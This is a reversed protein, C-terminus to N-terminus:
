TIIYLTNANYSSPRGESIVIKTNLNVHGNTVTFSSSDFSAIGLETTSAIPLETIGGSGGSEYDTGYMTIGGTVVLNGDLKWYGNNKDWIIENDNIFLGGTFNKKGIITDEGKITVFTEDVYSKDAKTSVVTQLDTVGKQLTNFESFKAFTEGKTFQISKGDNILEALTIANGSGVTTVSEITGGSAKAKLVKEGTSEDWYITDWDIPLGDYISDVDVNDNTAYMTIGGRVVLNADLYIVDDQSQYIKKDGIYIGNTFHKIGSVYQEKEDLTVFMDTYDPLDDETLFTSGKILTLTKGDDTLAFGTYANGLGDEKIDGFGANGNGKVLVEINKTDPNFRITKGDFPLSQAMDPIDIDDLDAYMTVGGSTVISKHFLFCDNTTDYEMLGDLLSLKPKVARIIWKDQLGEDYMWFESNDTMIPIQNGSEDTTFQQEGDLYSYAQKTDENYGFAALSKDWVFMDNSQDATINASLKIVNKTDRTLRLPPQVLLKLSDSSVVTENIGEPISESVVTYDTANQNSIQLQEETYVSSIKYQIQFTDYPSPVSIRFYYANSPTIIEQETKELVVSNIITMTNDYFFIGYKNENSVITSVILMKSNGAVSTYGTTSWGTATIEDGIKNSETEKNNIVINEFTLADKDLEADELIFKNYIIINSLGSASGTAGGGGGIYTTKTETKNEQEQQVDKFWDPISVYKNHKSNFLSAM